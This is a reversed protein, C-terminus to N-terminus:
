ECAPQLKATTKRTALGFLRCLRSRVSRVADESPMKAQLSTQGHASLSAPSCPHFPPIALYHLVVACCRPRRSAAELGLIAKCASYEGHLSYTHSSAARSNVFTECSAGCHKGNAYILELSAALAQMGAASRSVWGLFVSRRAGATYRGATGCLGCSCRSLSPRPWSAGGCHLVTGGPNERGRQATGSNIRAISPWLRPPSVTQTACCYRRSPGFPSSRVANHM